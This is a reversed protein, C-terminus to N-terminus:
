LAVSRDGATGALGTPAGPLTALAQPTLAATAASEPGTGNTNVAAATFTYSTGNTLGTVTYSTSTSGTSITTQAVGAVYPTIKCDTIPSGGDSAPATWNLAVSANAAAGTLATPAAPVAPRTAVSVDDFDTTNVADNWLELVKLDATR